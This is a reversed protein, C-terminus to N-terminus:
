VNSDIIRSIALKGYRLLLGSVDTDGRLDSFPWTDTGKFTVSWRKLKGPAPGYRDVLGRAMAYLYDVCPQDLHVMTAGRDDDDSIDVLEVQPVAVGYVLKRTKRARIEIDTLAVFKEFCETWFREAGNFHEGVFRLATISKHLPTYLDKELKYLM